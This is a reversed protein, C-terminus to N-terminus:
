LLAAVLMGAGLLTGTAMGSRLSTAGGTKSTPQAGSGSGSGSVSGTQSPGGSTLNPATGKVVTASGTDVPTNTSIPYGASVAKIEFPDSEAYIDTRNLINSLKITYGTGVPINALIDAGLSQVCNYNQEIAILDATATLLTVDPNAISLTFQTFTSESCTWAVNNVSGVVWWLNDGGPALIKLGGNSTAASAAAALAALTLTLKSLM